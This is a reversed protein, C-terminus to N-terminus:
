TLKKKHIPLDQEVEKVTGSDFKKERQDIAAQKFVGAAMMALGASAKAWAQMIKLIEWAAWGHMGMSAGGVILQLEKSEFPSISM